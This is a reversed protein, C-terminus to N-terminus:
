NLTLWPDLTISRPSLSTKLWCTTWFWPFTSLDLHLGKLLVNSTGQLRKSSSSTVSGGWGSSSVTLMSFQHVTRVVLICLFVSSSARECSSSPTSSWTSCKSWFAVTRSLLQCIIWAARQQLPRLLHSRTRWWRFPNLPRSHWLDDALGDIQVRHNLWMLSEVVRDAKCSPLTEHAM